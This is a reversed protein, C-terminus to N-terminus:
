RYECGCTPTHRDGHKGDPGLPRSIDIQDIIAGILRSWSPVRDVDLGSRAREALASQAACLAERTMKLHDPKITPPVEAPGRVLANMTNLAHVVLRGLEPTDMTGVQVDTREPEPGAQVYITRENHRGTRYTTM